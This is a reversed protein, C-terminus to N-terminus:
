KRIRKMGDLGNDIKDFAWFFTNIIGLSVACLIFVNVLIFFNISEKFEAVRTM